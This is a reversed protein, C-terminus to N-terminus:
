NIHPRAALQAEVQYEILYPHLNNLTKRANCPMRLVNKNLRTCKSKSEKRPKKEQYKNKTKTKKKQLAHASVKSRTKLRMLVFSIRTNNNSRFCHCPVVGSWSGCSSSQSSKHRLGLAQGSTRSQLQPSILRKSHRVHPGSLSRAGRKNNQCHGILPGM